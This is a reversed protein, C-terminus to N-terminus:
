RSPQNLTLWYLGVQAITKAFVSFDIPNVIYSNVGLRYCELVDQEQQSSTLMVVPIGKIRENSKIQRLVEKGDIKPLKLDLFIVKPIQGAPRQAYPGKSLLFNIAEAGDKVVQINHTINSKKLARLTLELDDPNDEVILLETGTM